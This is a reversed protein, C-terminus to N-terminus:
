RQGRGAAQWDERLIAWREHDRWRGAVKLYRPSYGERTFGSRRVLSISAANGPQINAEVRHLKLRVFAHRLVLRMAESMYGRGAYPTGACYGMYASRFNGYFIQSLNFVGAIKEDEIRCVLLSEFDERRAREVLSAFAEPSRPPQVLGSHMRASVRMLAIFEAEDGGEPPRIFVRQAAQKHEM